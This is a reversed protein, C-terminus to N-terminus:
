PKYTTDKKNLTFTWYIPLTLYFVARIVGKRTKLLMTNIFVTILLFMNKNQFKLEKKFHQKRFINENPKNNFSKIDKKDMCMLYKKCITRNLSYDNVNKNVAATQRPNIFAWRRSGREGIQRNSWLRFVYAEWSRVPNSFQFDEGVSSAFKAKLNEGSFSNQYQEEGLHAQELGEIAEPERLWIFACTYINTYAYLVIHTTYYVWAQM